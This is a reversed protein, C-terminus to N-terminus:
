PTAGFLPFSALTEPQGGESSARVEVRFDPGAQEKPIGRPCLLDLSWSGDAGPQGGLTLDVSEWPDSGRLFVAQFRLDELAVHHLPRILVNLSPYYHGTQEFAQPPIPGTPAVLVAKDSLNPTWM